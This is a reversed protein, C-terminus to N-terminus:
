TKGSPEKKRREDLSDSVGWVGASKINGGTLNAPIVTVKRVM